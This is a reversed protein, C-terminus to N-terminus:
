REPEDDDGRNDGWPKFDDEGPLGARDLDQDRDRGWVPFDDKGPLGRTIAGPPNRWLDLLDTYTIEGARKNEAATQVKDILVDLTVGPSIRLEQGAEALREALTKRPLPLIVEAHALGARRLLQLCQTILDDLTSM